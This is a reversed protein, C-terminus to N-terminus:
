DLSEVFRAMHQFALRAEPLFPGFIQFVHPMDRWEEYVVHVGAARARAVMRRADDRLVEGTGAMVMLSPLGRLDAYLPSVAPDRPDIGDLYFRALKRLSRAPLMADRRNNKRYSDGSCGMDTWPSLCLAAKPLPLGQNRLAILTTLTLHGGASDGAIIINEPRYGQDLLYQYAYLADEQWHEFRHDPAMRYNLSLVPRGLAESLRWTLPRHAAASSFFYGGGHLYLVVQQHDLGAGAYLWEGDLDSLHVPRIQVHEPVHKFGWEVVRYLGSIYRLSVPSTPAWTLVQKFSSKLALNVVHSQWSQPYAPRVAQDRGQSTWYGSRRPRGTVAGQTALPQMREIQTM